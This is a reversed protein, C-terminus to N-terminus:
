TDVTKARDTHGLDKDPAIRDRVLQKLEKIEPFREQQQRSWILDGDVRIDFVGAEGPALAVEGLEEPFTTLLEQAMWASRLLWKCKTCYRIEVRPSNAM